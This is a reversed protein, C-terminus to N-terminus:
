TESPLCPLNRSPYGPHRERFLRQRETNSMPPCRQLTMFTIDDQVTRPNLPDFRNYPNHRPNGHFRCLFM